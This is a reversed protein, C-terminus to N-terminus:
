FFSARRPRRSCRSCCREASSTRASCSSTTSSPVASRTQHTGSKFSDCFAKLLRSIKASAISQKDLKGNAFAFVDLKEFDHLFAFFLGFMASFAFTQVSKM